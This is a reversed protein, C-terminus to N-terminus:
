RAVVHNRLWVKDKALSYCKEHGSLLIERVQPGVAAILDDLTRCGEFHLYENHPYKDFEATKVIM